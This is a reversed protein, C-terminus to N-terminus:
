NPPSGGDNVRQRRPERAPTGPVANESVRRKKPSRPIAPQKQAIKQLDEVWYYESLRTDEVYESKPQQCFTRNDERLIRFLGAKGELVKGLRNGEADQWSKKEAMNKTM